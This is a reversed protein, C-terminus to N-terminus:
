QQLLDSEDRRHVVQAREAQVRLRELVRQAGLRGVPLHGEGLGDVLAGGLVQLHTPTHCPSCSAPDTPASALVRAGGGNGHAGPRGAAQTAGCDANAYQEACALRQM